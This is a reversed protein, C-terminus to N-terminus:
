FARCDNEFCFGLGHYPQPEHGDCTGGLTGHEFNTLRACRKATQRLVRDIEGVTTERSMMSADLEPIAAVPQAVKTTLVPGEDIIAWQSLRVLQLRAVRDLEAGTAQYHFVLVFVLGGTKRTWPM